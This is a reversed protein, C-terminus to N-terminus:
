KEFVKEIQGVKKQIKGALKERQGEAAMNPNNTVQGAKQKVKGKMEHLSGQIRDKTSPKMKNTNEEKKTLTMCDPAWDEARPANKAAMRFQGRKSRISREAKRRSTKGTRGPPLVQMSYCIRCRRPGNRVGNGAAGAKTQRPAASPAGRASVDSHAFGLLYSSLVTVKGSVGMTSAGLMVALFIVQGSM